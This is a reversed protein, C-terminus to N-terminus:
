SLATPLPICVACSATLTAVRSIAKPSFFLVKVQHSYVNQNVDVLCARNCLAVAIQSQEITLAM